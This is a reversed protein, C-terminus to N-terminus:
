IDSSKGILIEKVLPVPISNCFEQSPLEVLSFILKLSNICNKSPFLPRRTILESMICGLM